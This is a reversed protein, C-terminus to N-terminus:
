STIRPAGPVLHGNQLTWITVATGTPCCTSDSPRYWNENAIVRGRTLRLKWVLTPHQNPPNKQPTVTGIATLRGQIGQFVVFAFALPGAATGGGNDCGVNIAAESRHDGTVDGYIVPVNRFNRFLHVPGWKDSTATAENAKLTVLGPVGCFEGPLPVHAWDVDHLDAPAAAVSQVVTTQTAEIPPEAIAAPVSARPIRPGGDSSSCASAALVAGILVTLVRTKSSPSM